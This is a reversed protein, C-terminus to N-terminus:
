FPLYDGEGPDYPGFAAEMEALWRADEEAQWEAESALQAPTDVGYYTCAEEYTNFQDAWTV